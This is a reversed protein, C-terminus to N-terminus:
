IIMNIINVSAVRAADPTIIAVFFRVYLQYIRAVSPARPRGGNWLSIHLMSFSTFFIKNIGRYIPYDTTLRQLDKHSMSLVSDFIIRLFYGYFVRLILYVIELAPFTAMTCM